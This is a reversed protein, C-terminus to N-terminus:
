VYDPNNGSYAVVSPFEKARFRFVTLGGHGLWPPDAEDAPAVAVEYQLSRRRTLRVLHAPVGDCHSADVVFATGAPASYLRRRWFSSQSVDAVVDALARVHWKKRIRRNM